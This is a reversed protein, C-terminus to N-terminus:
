EKEDENRAGEKGANIEKKLKIIERRIRDTDEDDKEREKRYSLALLLVAAGLIVVIGAPSKIANWIRGIGGIKGTMKGKIATIPFPEDSSNNADGRTTVTEGDISEIRHIVLINGSQYVVVDGIEYEDCEKIFVLDDVSLAPEMSGSLVVAAGHGFPMPLKNGSLSSANWTYVSSGIIISIFVLLIIRFIQARVSRDNRRPM